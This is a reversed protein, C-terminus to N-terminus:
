PKGPTNGNSELLVGQILQNIKERITVLKSELQERLSLADDVLGIIRQQEERCPCVILFRMLQGPFFNTMNGM